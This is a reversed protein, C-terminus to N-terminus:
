NSEEQLLRVIGTNYLLISGFLHVTLPVSGQPSMKLEVIVHSGFTLYMPDLEHMLLHVEERVIEQALPKIVV